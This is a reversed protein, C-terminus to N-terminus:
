VLLIGGNVNLNEGNIYDAEESLLFLVANVTDKVEGLRKSPNKQATAKIEEDTYSQRTLPTLTLSPSVTNVKINYKPTLELACCKSLMVTAAEATCYAVSEGAPRDALRSAINIIRPNKSLKMLPIAYKICMWRGVLNVDLEKRFEEPTLDEISNIKDYAANNVLGDLRGFTQNIKEFMLKIDEEKSVDAKIFLVKDSYDKFIEKTQNANEENSSYNIIVKAGLELLKKAIGQGIGSTSGTVLIVKDNFNM